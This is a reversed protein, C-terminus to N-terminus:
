VADPYGQLWSGTQQCARASSGFPRQEGSRNPDMMAVQVIQGFARHRYRKRTQCRNEMDSGRVILHPARGGVAATYSRASPATWQEQCPGVQQRWRRFPEAVRIWRIFINEGPEAMMLLISSALGSAILGEAL